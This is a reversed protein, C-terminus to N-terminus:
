SWCTIWTEVWRNGVDNTPCAGEISTWETGKCYADCVVLEVGEDAMCLGTMMLLEQHNWMDDCTRGGTREIQPEAVNCVDVNRHSLAQQTCESPSLNIGYDTHVEVRM